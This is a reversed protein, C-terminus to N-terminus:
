RIDHLIFNSVFRFTVTSFLFFFLLFLCYGNAMKETKLEEAESRLNRICIISKRLPLLFFYQQKKTDLIRLLKWWNSQKLSQKTDTVHIFSLLRLLLLFFVINGCLGREYTYAYQYAFFTFHYRNSEPIRSSYTSYEKTEIISIKASTSELLQALNSQVFNWTSYM